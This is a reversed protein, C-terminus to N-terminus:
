LLTVRGGAGDVRVRDGDRLRDLVGRVAMVAPIGMERATVAGHSLPGGSETVIATALPFLVTWAPNTTRAVLVAGRPFRAFDDASRVVFVAGEAIGPSGAVGALAGAAAPEAAGHSWAPARERNALYASKAADIERALAAWRGPDEAAIAQELTAVRAFFVDMPTAVVGKVCLREGLARLGRRLPLTLRATEYHELDDLATYIRVLGILEQLPLRLDEPLAATLAFEAKQARLKQAFLREAPSEGAPQDLMLRLADLVLHPAEVWTPHYPDFEVERHGHDALFAGFRRAFAPFAALRDEAVLHTAPTERLLAALAPEDRIMRAMRHLEENIAGTRTEAYGILAAFAAGGEAEGLLLRLIDRLVHFLASQAISIAINSKFYARGLANVRAVYDWIQGPSAGDLPEAMLAGVQMLYRDLDRSWQRPLEEVWGFRRRLQPLAARLEDLSRLALPARGMYLEVASQNGYVYNDFLAFWKGRFPPLGMLAFSHALATHFGAEVFDWALPTVVNPFREASEDRTWRPAIATVPRGQLLWLKEADFAWEIDQPFGHLDEVQRLLHGLATLDDGSLSPAAAEEAGTAVSAVGDAAVVVRTAKAGIRAHRLALSAKDLVFHDVEGDGAVVSEGLGFNATVVMEDLRGSVPDLSFAVGASRATVMRQVVVAMAARSGDLGAQERYAIARDQWLSLFCAKVADLIAALGRRNLFSDHQGAFAAEALDELTGSSRVAYASAADAGLAAAIEEALGAPLPRRALADRWAAAEEARAAPALGSLAAVREAADPVGAVLDRYADATVVIGQPVPLGAALLRALSAGKGGALNAALARPDNLSLVYRM